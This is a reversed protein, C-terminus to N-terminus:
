RRDKSYQISISPSYFGGPEQWMELYDIGLRPTLIRRRDKSDHLDVGVGIGFGAGLFSSFGFDNSQGSDSLKSITFGPFGNGHSVGAFWRKSESSPTLYYDATLSTSLVPGYGIGFGFRETTYILRGQLSECSTSLGACLGFRLGKAPSAESFSILTLLFPLM